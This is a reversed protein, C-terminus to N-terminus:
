VISCFENIFIIEIHKCSHNIINLVIWQKQKDKRNTTISMPCSFRRDFSCHSILYARVHSSRDDYGFLSTSAHQNFALKKNCIRYVTRRTTEGVRTKDTTKSILLSSIVCHSLRIVITYKFFMKLIRAFLYLVVSLRCRSILSRACAWFLTHTHTHSLSLSLSLFYHQWIKERIM